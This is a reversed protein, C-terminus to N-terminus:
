YRYEKLVDRLSYTITYILFSNISFNIANNCEETFNYM